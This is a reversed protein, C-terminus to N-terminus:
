SLTVESSTETDNKRLNQWNMWGRPKKIENSNIIVRFYNGSM